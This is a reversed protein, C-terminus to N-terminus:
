RDASTALAGFQETRGVVSAVIKETWRNYNLPLRNIGKWGIMQLHPIGLLMGICSTSMELQEFVLTSLLIM